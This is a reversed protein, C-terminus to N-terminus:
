YDFVKDQGSQEHIQCSACDSSLPVFGGERFDLLLVDLYTDGELAWTVNHRAQGMNAHKQAITPRTGPALPPM